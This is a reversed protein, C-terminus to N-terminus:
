KRNTQRLANEAAKAASSAARESATMVDKVAKEYAAQASSAKSKGFSPSVSTDPITLLHCDAHYPISNSQPNKAWLAAMAKQLKDCGAPAVRYEAVRPTKSVLGTVAIYDKISKKQEIFQLKTGIPFTYGLDADFFTAQLESTEIFPKNFDYKPFLTNYAAIGIVVPIAIIAILAGGVDGGASAGSFSSPSEEKAKLSYNEAHIQGHRFADWNMGTTFANGRVGSMFDNHKQEDEYSM